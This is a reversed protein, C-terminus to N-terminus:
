IFLTVTVSFRNLNFYKLFLRVKQVAMKTLGKLFELQLLPEKEEALKYLIFIVVSTSFDNNNEVIKLLLNFSGQRVENRDFNHIFLASVFLQLHESIDQPVNTMRQLWDQVVAPNSQWTEALRCMEIVPGVLSDTNRLHNFPKSAYLQGTSSSWSASSNVWALVSTAMKLAEETLYSPYVVWQLLACVFMRNAIANTMKLEVISVGAVHISNLSSVCLFM